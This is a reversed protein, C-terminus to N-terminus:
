RRAEPIAEPSVLGREAPGKAITYQQLEPECMKRRLQFPDMETMIFKQSVQYTSSTPLSEPVGLNCLFDEIKPDLTGPVINPM